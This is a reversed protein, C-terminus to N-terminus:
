AVDHMSSECLSMLGTEAIDSINSAATQVMPMQPRAKSTGGSAFWAELEEPKWTFAQALQARVTTANPPSKGYEHREAGPM